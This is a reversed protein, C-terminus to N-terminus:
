LTLARQESLKKEWESKDRRRHEGPRSHGDSARNRKRNQSTGGWRREGTPSHGDSARNRKGNQSTGGDASELVHTGTALETEKGM